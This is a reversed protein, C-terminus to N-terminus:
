SALRSNTMEVQGAYGLALCEGAIWLDGPVGPPQPCMRADLVYVQTNAIPLGIPSERMSMLIDHDVWQSTVVHTETPGYHNHLRCGSLKQLLHRVEPTFKLSEGASIIDILPAPSNGSAIALQQLMVFPVFLREIRERQLTDWLEEPDRRVEEAVMVLTGGTCLTSLIEQISVDFNCSAFQLTRAPVKLRPEQQHWAILNIM